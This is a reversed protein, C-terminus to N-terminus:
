KGNDQLSELRTKVNISSYTTFLGIILSNWFLFIRVKKEVHLYPNPSILLLTQGHDLQNYLYDM